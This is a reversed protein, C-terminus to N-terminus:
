SARGAAGGANRRENGNRLAGYGVGAGNRRNRYRRRGGFRASGLRVPGTAANRRPLPYGPAHLHVGIIRARTGVRWRGPSGSPAVLPALLNDPSKDGAGGIAGRNASFRSGGKPCPVSHHQSAGDAVALLFVSKALDVGVIPLAATANM